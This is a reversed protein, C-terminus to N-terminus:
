SELDNSYLENGNGLFDSFNIIEVFFDSKRISEDVGNVHILVPRLSLNGPNNLRDMKKKVEEAANSRIKNRSFKIEIIYLSSSTQILYDIQCANQRLTKKQFYPNEYIIEENKIGLIKKIRERNNLVLNEFQLGLVTTWGPLSNLSIDKYNGASIRTFNPKIYKLYFRSYNDSLRYASLISEKKKGINWTFDRSVIGSKVLNDLQSSIEGSKAVNMEKIVQKQNKGGSALCEVIRKYIGKKSSFLDSFIKEFEVLLFSGQDFCMQQINKEATVNPDIFELYRPVGGTISLLVFKEYASIPKGKWFQNCIDLPLEHLTMDLGYRGMFGASSLINEEIWVSVSGCVVIILQPNNSFHLDWANKLKGLFDPDLSGMWSIEDLVLLVQGSKVADALFWFLDGWDDAKVAPMGTNRQLQHAFEERQSQATTQSTPPLGSFFYAKPFYTAFQKLLTSKGIRRRGKIVLLSASEKNLFRRLLSLEHERGYFNINEIV